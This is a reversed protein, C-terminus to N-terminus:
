PHPIDVITTTQRWLTLFSVRWPRGCVSVTRCRRLDPWSWKGHVNDTIWKNLFLFELVSCRRSHVTDCYSIVLIESSDAAKVETKLASVWLPFLLQLHKIVCLYIGYLWLFTISLSQTQETCWSHYVVTFGLGQIAMSYVFRFLYKWLVDYACDSPLTQWVCNKASCV